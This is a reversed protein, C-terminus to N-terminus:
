QVSGYFQKVRNAEKVFEMLADRNSEKQDLLRRAERHAEPLRNIASTAAQLSSQIGEVEAILNAIDSDFRYREMTGYKPRSANAHAIMEDLMIGVAVGIKENSSALLHSLSELEPQAQDMAAKLAERRKHSGMQRGITNALTAFVGTPVTRIGSTQATDQLNKLSAGLQESAKDVESLYDKSSIAYLLAIYNDITDIVSERFRLQPTLDFSKGEIVPKFTDRTLPADPATAVAFQRQLKEIRAYTDKTSELLSHSSDKLVEYQGTPLSTCGSLGLTWVLVVVLTYFFLNKHSM